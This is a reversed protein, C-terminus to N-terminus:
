PIDCDMVIWGQNLVTNQVFSWYIIFNSIPSFMNFFLALFYLTEVFNMEINRIISDKWPNERSFGQDSIVKRNVQM